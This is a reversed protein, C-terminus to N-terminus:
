VVSGDRARRVRGTAATVAPSVRLARQWSV